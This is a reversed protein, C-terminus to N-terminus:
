KYNYLKIVLVLDSNILAYLCAPIKKIKRVNGFVDKRLHLELIL